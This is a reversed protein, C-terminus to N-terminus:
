RTFLVMNCIYIFGCMWGILITKGARQYRKKLKLYEIDSSEISLYLDIASHANANANAGRVVKSINERTFGTSGVKGEMEKFEYPFREKVYSSISYYTIGLYVLLVIVYFALLLITVGSQIYQNNWIYYIKPFFAFLGMVIIRYIM